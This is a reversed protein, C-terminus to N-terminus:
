KQFEALRALNHFALIIKALYTKVGFLTCFIIFSFISKVRFNGWNEYNWTSGDLWAWSWQIYDLGEDFLQTEDFRYEISPKM